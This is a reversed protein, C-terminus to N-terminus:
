PRTVRLTPPVPGKRALLNRTDLSRSFQEAASPHVHRLVGRNGIAYVGFGMAFLTELLAAPRGGRKLLISPKFEMILSLNGSRTALGRLGDLVEAEAGEVDIKVLEVRDIGRAALFGDLSATAVQLRDVYDKVDVLSHGMSLPTAYLTGQGESNTIAMPVATVNTIRQRALNRCLTQFNAPHPEFAFVRGTPGVCRSLIISLYGVHAGADVVVAGPTILEECVRVTDREYAGVLMEIKYLPLLREAPVEFGRAAALVKVVVEGGHWVLARALRHAVGFRRVTRNYLAIARESIVRPGGSRPPRQRAPDRTAGGM